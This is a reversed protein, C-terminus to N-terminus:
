CVFHNVVEFNYMPMGGPLFIYKRCELQGLCFKFDVQFLACLMQSWSSNGDFSFYAFINEAKEEM